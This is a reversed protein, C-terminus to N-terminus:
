GNRLKLRLERPLRSLERDLIQIQVPTLIAVTGETFFEEARGNEIFGHEKEQARVNQIDALNVAEEVSVRGPPNGIFKLISNFTDITHDRLETYTVVMTPVGDAVSLHSLVNQAWSGVVSPGVAVTNEGTLLWNERTIVNVAQDISLGFHRAVSAAVDHPHRVIYIVRSFIAPHFAPSSGYVRAWHSKVFPSGIARANQVSWINAAFRLNIVLEPPLESLQFPIASQYLHKGADGPVVNVLRNIDVDGTLYAQILTRIFTNGSKPYSAIAVLGSEGTGHSRETEAM